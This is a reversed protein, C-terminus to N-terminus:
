RRPGVLCVTTNKARFPGTVLTLLNSYSVLHTQKPFTIWSVPQCATGRADGWGGGPGAPKLALKGIAEDSHYSGVSGGSSQPLGAFM